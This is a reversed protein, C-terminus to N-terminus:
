RRRWLREAYRAGAGLERAYAASAALFGQRDGFLPVLQSEYCAVAAAITRVDEAEVALLEPRLPPVRALCRRRQAILRALLADGAPGRPFWSQVYGQALFSASWSADDLAPTYTGVGALRDDVAGAVFAYPRDEYFTRAITRFTIAALCYCLRHDVHGGVGLPFWLERPMLEVVLNDLAEGVAKKVPYDRKDPMGILEGFGSYGRFPADPFGLHRAEVDLLALAARDEARRAAYGPGESCVTAVVVRRGRRRERLLFGAVSLVADDLHPSVVLITM